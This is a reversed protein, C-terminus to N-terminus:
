KVVIFSQLTFLRFCATMITDIEEHISTSSELHVVDNTGEGVIIVVVVKEYGVNYPARKWM